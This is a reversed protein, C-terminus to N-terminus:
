KAVTVVPQAPKEAPKTVNVQKASPALPQTKKKIIMVKGPAKANPKQIAKM